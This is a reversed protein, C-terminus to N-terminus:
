IQNSTEKGWGEKRVNWGEEFGGSAFSSLKSQTLMKQERNWTESCETHLSFPIEACKGLAPFINCRPM